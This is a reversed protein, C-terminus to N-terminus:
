NEEERIMVLNAARPRIIMERALGTAVVFDWRGARMDFEIRVELKRGDPAELTVVHAQYGTADDIKVRMPM